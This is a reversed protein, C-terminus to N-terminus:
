KKRRITVLTVKVNQPTREYLTDIYAQGEAELLATKYSISRRKYHTVRYSIGRTTGEPKGRAILAARLRAYEGQFATLKDKVDALRSLSLRM